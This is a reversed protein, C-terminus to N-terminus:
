NELKDWDTRASIRAPSAHCDEGKRDNRTRHHLRM